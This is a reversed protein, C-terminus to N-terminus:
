VPSFQRVENAFHPKLVMVKYPQKLFGSAVHKM